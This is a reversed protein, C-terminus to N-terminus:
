ARERGREERAGVRAGAAVEGDHLLRRVDLVVGAAHEELEPIGDTSFGGAIARERATFIAAPLPRHPPIERVSLCRGLRLAFRRPTGGAVDLVVWSTTSTGLGLLDGLDWAPVTEGPLDIAHLSGELRRAGLDATRAVQVIAAADIAVLLDGVLCFLGLSV